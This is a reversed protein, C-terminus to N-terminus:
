HCEKISIIMIATRAPQETRFPHRPHFLPSPMIAAPSTQFKKPVELHFEKERYSLDLIGFSLVQSIGCRTEPRSGSGKGASQLLQQLLHFSLVGFCLLLFLFVDLGHLLHRPLLCYVQEQISCSSFVFSILAIGSSSSISHRFPQM